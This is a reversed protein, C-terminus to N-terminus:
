PKAVYFGAVGNGAVENPKDSAFTYLPMGKYTYQVQGNDTRKITGFNAPLNTTSGSDQYAPWIALCSGSCNSVNPKDANYTYLAYGNPEALYSGIGPKSKTVVISNNISNSGSSTQSISSASAGSSNTPQYKKNGVLAYVIVLVIIIAGLGIISFIKGRKSM